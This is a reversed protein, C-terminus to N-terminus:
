YTILHKNPSRQGKLSCMGGEFIEDSLLNDLYYKPILKFLLACEMLSNCDFFHPSTIFLYVNVNDFIEGQLLPTIWHASVYM